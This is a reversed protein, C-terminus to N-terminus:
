MTLAASSTRADCQASSEDEILGIWSRFPIKAFADKWAAAQPFAFAPNVDWLIAAAFRGSAMDRTALSWTRAARSRNPPRLEVGDSGLMANLLHAAVHAEAPMEEGCLVVARRRAAALDDVLQTWVRAPIDVGRPMGAPVASLDAGAPLAVAHRTNLEKALAFALPALRSPKVPIRQDANSGTLTMPGEFVWLRNMAEGSGGLRRKSAFAAVAEVDAGNLVDSGLSLIM